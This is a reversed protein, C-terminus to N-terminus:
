KQPWRQQQAFALMIPLMKKNKCSEM